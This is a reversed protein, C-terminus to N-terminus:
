GGRSSGRQGAQLTRWPCWGHGMPLSSWPISSPAQALFMPLCRSEPELDVDLRVLPWRRAKWRAVPGVPRCRCHRDFRRRSGDPKRYRAGARVPPAPELSRGRMRSTAYRAGQIRKGPLEEASASSEAANGGVEPRGQDGLRAHGFGRVASCRGDRLMEHLVVGFAWIEARKDVM